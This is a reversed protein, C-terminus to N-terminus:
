GTTWGEARMLRDNHTRASRFVAQMDGVDMPRTGDKEEHLDNYYDREMTPLATELQGQMYRRMYRYTKQMASFIDRKVGAKKADTDILSEWDSYPRSNNAV